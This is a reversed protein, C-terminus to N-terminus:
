SKSREQRCLTRRVLRNPPALTQAPANRNGAAHGKVRRHRRVPRAPDRRPPCPSTAVRASPSRPTAFLTGLSHSSPAIHANVHAGDKEAALGVGPFGPPRHIRGRNWAGAGGCGQKNRTVKAHGGARIVRAESPRHRPRQQGSLYARVIKREHIKLAGQSVSSPSDGLRPGGQPSVWCQGPRDSIPAKAAHGQGVVVNEIGSHLAHRVRQVLAFPGSQRHHPGSFVKRSGFSRQNGVEPSDAHPDHGAGLALERDSASLCSSRSWEVWPPRRVQHAVGRPGCVDDDDDKVAAVLQSGHRAGSEDRGAAAEYRGTRMCHDAVMRVNRSRCLDKAPRRDEVAGAIKKEWIVNPNRRPM